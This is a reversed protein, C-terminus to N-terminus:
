DGPMEVDALAHNPRAPSPQLLRTADRDDLKPLTDPAVLGVNLVGDPLDLPRKHCPLRNIQANGWLADARIEPQFATPDGNDDWFGSRSHLFDFIAKVRKTM